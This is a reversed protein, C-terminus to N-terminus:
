AGRLADAWRDSPRQNPQTASDALSGSSFRFTQSGFSRLTVSFTISGAVMATGTAPSITASTDSTNFTVTGVYSTNKVNTGDQAEVTVTIAQGSMSTAPVSSTIVLKTAAAAAITGPLLAALMLAVLLAAAFRRIPAGSRVVNM